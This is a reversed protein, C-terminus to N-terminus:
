KTRSGTDDDAWQVVGTHRDFEARKSEALRERVVRLTFAGHMLGADNVFWDVIDDRTFQRVQGVRYWQALEKPVEFFQGRFVNRLSDQQIPALWLNVFRQEGLRESSAPDNLRLKAACIHSGPRQLHTVFQDLSASARAHAHMMEEDQDHVRVFLPEEPSATPAEAKKKRWFLFM